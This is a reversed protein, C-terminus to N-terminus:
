QHLKQHCDKCVASLNESTTRGGDAHRTNHHGDVENLNKNDGCDACKGDQEDLKQATQKRSFLRKPDRQDKPVTGKGKGSKEVAENLM